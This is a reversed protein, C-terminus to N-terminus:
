AKKAHKQISEVTSSITAIARLVASDENKENADARLLDHFLRGVEVANCTVGRQKSTASTKEMRLVCEAFTVCAELKAEDMHAGMTKNLMAILVNLLMVIVITAHTLVLFYGLVSSATTGLQEFPEMNIQAFTVLYTTLFSKPVSEYGKFMENPDKNKLIALLAFTAETENNTGPFVSGLSQSFKDFFTQDPEYPKLYYGQSKFLLYYACTYACQIPFYFALYRFVDALMRRMMPLLYGVAPIVELYSVSMVWVLFLAPIGAYVRMTASFPATFECVVYILILFFTPLQIRNWYSELYPTPKGGKLLAFTSTLMYRLARLGRHVFGRPEDDDLMDAAFERSEFVCFYLASLGLLANNLAVFRESFRGKKDEGDMTTNITATSICLPQVDDYKLLLGTITGGGVILVICACVAKYLWGILVQDLEASTATDIGFGIVLSVTFTLLLLGHMLLQECYMRLGFARWKLLVILRMVVHRLLRKKANEIADLDWPLLNDSSDQHLLKFLMSDRVQAAFATAAQSVDAKWDDLTSAISELQQLKQMREQQRKTHRVTSRNTDDDDGRRRGSPSQEHQEDGDSHDSRPTRSVRYTTSPESPTMELVVGVTDQHRYCPHTAGDAADSIYHM